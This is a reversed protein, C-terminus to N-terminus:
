KKKRGFWGNKVSYYDLATMFIGFFVAQFISGKWNIPDDFFLKGGLTNLIFFLVAYLFCSIALMGRDKKEM